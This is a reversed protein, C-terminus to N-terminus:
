RAIVLQRSVTESGAQVVVHYLGPIERTAQVPIRYGGPELTGEFLAPRPRGLLDYLLIRVPVPRQLEFAVTVANETGAPNPHMGTFILSAASPVPTEIGLTSRNSIIIVGTAGGYVREDPGFAVSYCLPVLTGSRPQQFSEGGDTTYLITGYNAAIYLHDRANCRMMEISQFAKDYHKWHEGGDSTSYLLGIKYPKYFGVFLEGKSNTTMASIAVTDPESRLPTIIETWTDGMDSSSYLKSRYAAYLLRHTTSYCMRITSYRNDRIFGTESWNIGYDFSRFIGSRTVVFLVTDDAFVLDMASIGSLAIRKWTRWNDTSKYVGASGAGVYMAGTKDRALCLMEMDGLDKVEWHRGDDTSILLGYSYGALYINASDVLIDEVSASVPLVREYWYDQSKVSALPFGIIVAVFLIRRLVYQVGTNRRLWTSSRLRDLYPHIGHRINIAKNCRIRPQTTHGHTM